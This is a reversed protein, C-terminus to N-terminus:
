HCQELAQEQVQDLCDPGVTLTIYQQKQINFTRSTKKLTILNVVCRSTFFKRSLWYLCNEECPYTENTPQFQTPWVETHMFMRVKRRERM